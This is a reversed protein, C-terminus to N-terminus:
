RSGLERRDKALEGLTAALFAPREQRQQQFSRWCAVGGLLFIAGMVGLAPVRHTEWLLVVVLITFLIAAMFFCFLALAVTMVISGLRVGEEELESSFIELRTYVLEVGTSALRRLSYFLGRGEEAGPGEAAPM